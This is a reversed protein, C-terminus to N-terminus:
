ILGQKFVLDTVGHTTSREAIREDQCQHNDRCVPAAYLSLAQLASMAGQKRVTSPTDPPTLISEAQMPFDPQIPAEYEVPSRSYIPLFDPIREEVMAIIENLVRQDLSSFVHQFVKNSQVLQWFVYLYDDMEQCRYLFGSAILPAFIMQERISYPLFSDQLYTDIVGSQYILWDYILTNSEKDQASLHPFLKQLLQMQYLINISKQAEGNTLQECLKQKIRATPSKEEDDLLYFYSSWNVDTYSTQEATALDRLLVAGAFLSGCPDKEFCTKADTTTHVARAALEKLGRGTPDYIQGFEDAFLARIPYDASVTEMTAESSYNIDIQRGMFNYYRCLHSNGNKNQRPGFLKEIELPPMSTVFDIDHKEDYVQNQSTILLNRWIEGGRVYVQYGAARIKKIVSLAVPHLTIAKLGWKNLDAPTLSGLSLPVNILPTASEKATTEAAVSIASNQPVSEKQYHIENVATDFEKKEEKGVADAKEIKGAQHTIDAKVTKKGPRRRNRRRSTTLHRKKNKNNRKSNRQSVPQNSIVVDNMEETEQTEDNIELTENNIEPTENNIALIEEKVDAGEALANPTCPNKAQALKPQKKVKPKRPLKKIAAVVEDLQKQIKAHTEKYGSRLPTDLSSLTSLHESNLLLNEYRIKALRLLDPNINPQNYPQNALFGALAYEINHFFCIDLKMTENIADNIKVYITKDIAQHQSLASQICTLKEELIINKTANACGLLRELGELKGSLFINWYHIFATLWLTQTARNSTTEIGEMQSNAQWEALKAIKKNLKLAPLEFLTIKHQTAVKFCGMAIERNHKKLMPDSASSHYFLLGLHYYALGLEITNKNGSNIQVIDLFTLYHPKNDHDSKKIASETASMQMALVELWSIIANIKEKCKETNLAAIGEEIKELLENEVSADMQLGREIEMRKALAQLALKFEVALLKGGAKLELLIRLRPLYEAKLSDPFSSLLATSKEPIFLSRLKKLSPEYGLSFAAWYYYYATLPKSKAQYLDGLTHLALKNNETALQLWLQEAKDVYEKKRTEFYCIGAFYNIEAIINTVRDSHGLDNLRSQAAMVHQLAKDLDRKSRALHALRCHSIVWYLVYGQQDHLTQKKYHQNRFVEECRKITAQLLDMGTVNLESSNTMAALALEDKAATFLVIIKDTLIKDTYSATATPEQLLNRLM